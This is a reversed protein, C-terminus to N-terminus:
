APKRGRTKSTTAGSAPKSIRARPSSAPRDPPVPAAPRGLPPLVASLLRDLMAGAARMVDNPKRYLLWTIILQNQSGILISATEYPNYTDAWEGRKAGEQVLRVVFRGYDDLTTRAPSDGVLVSPWIELYLTRAWDPNRRAYDASLWLFLRLRERFSDSARAREAYEIFFWALHSIPVAYAIDEKSPYYEYLSSLPMGAEAAIDAIRARGIGVKAFMRLAAQLIEEERRRSRSHRREPVRSQWELAMTEMTEAWSQERAVETMNDAMREIRNM